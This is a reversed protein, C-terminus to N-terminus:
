RITKEKSLIAEVAKKQAEVETKKKKQENKNNSIDEEALKIKKQYDEIKGKYDEINKELKSKQKELDKQENELKALQKEASKRQAIVADRMAKVAFDYVFTKAEGFKDKHSSSSLFAGGLDFAVMFKIEGEKVKEAKAYVDITNNDNIKKIVANDAFIEDGSSTQAKYDKMLARWSKEVEEATIEYITVILAPNKGGGIRETSETVKVKQAFVNASLLFALLPLFYSFEKKM